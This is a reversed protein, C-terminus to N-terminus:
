RRVFGGFMMAAFTGISLRRMVPLLWRRELTTASSKLTVSDSEYNRVQEKHTKEMGTIVSERLKSEASHAKKTENLENELQGHSFSQERVEERVEKLHAANAQRRSVELAKTEEKADAFSKVLGDNRENLQYIIGDHATAAEVKEAIMKNIVEECASRVKVLADRASALGANQDTIQQIQLKSDDLKKNLDAIVADTAALDVGSYIDVPFEDGLAKKLRNTRETGIKFESDTLSAVRIGGTIADAENDAFTLHYEVDSRTGPNRIKM